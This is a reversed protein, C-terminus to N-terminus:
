DGARLAGGSWLRREAPLGLVSHGPDTGRDTGPGAHGHARHGRDPLRSLIWGVSGTGAAAVYSALLGPDDRPRALARRRESRTCRPRGLGERLGPRAPFQP